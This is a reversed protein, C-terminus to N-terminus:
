NMVEKEKKEFFPGLLSIFKKGAQDQNEDRHPKPGNVILSECRQHEKGIAIHRFM